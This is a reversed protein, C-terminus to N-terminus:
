KAPTSMYTILASYDADTCDFCMGKPPMANLGNTATELLGDIGKQARPSWAATDGTKPAGAVGVSHCAVCYTNYVQDGSRAAAADGAAAAGAPVAGVNVQGVPQINELIKAQMRENPGEADMDSTVVSAVIYFGIAAVVLVALVGVFSRILAKHQSM